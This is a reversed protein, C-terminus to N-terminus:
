KEPLFHIKYDVGPRGKSRISIAPGGTKSSPRYVIFQRNGLSAQEGLGSALPSILESGLSLQEYFEKATEIPNSSEIVQATTAGPKGFKGDPGLPYKKALNAINKALLGSSVYGGGSAGGM